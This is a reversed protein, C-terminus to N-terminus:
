AAYLVERSSLIAKRRFPNRLGEKAVLDVKRGFLRELEEKMEVWEYLSWDAEVSFEILVDVDSDPGFDERLISGFLSFEGIKWKQCFAEIASKPIEVAAQSM